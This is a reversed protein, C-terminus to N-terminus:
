QSLVDHVSELKDGDRYDGLTDDTHRASERWITWTREHCGEGCAQDRDAPTGPHLQDNHRSARDKPRQQTSLHRCALTLGKCQM